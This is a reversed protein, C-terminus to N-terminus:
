ELPSKKHYAANAAFCNPQLRRRACKRDFAKESEGPNIFLPSAVHEASFATEALRVVDPHESSIDNKEYSDSIVDYVETEAAAFPRYAKYRGTRIAQARLYEFYMYERQPSAGDTLMPLLSVGDTDPPVAGAADAFTAMLDILGCPYQINERHAVANKWSFILPIRCGAEGNLSFKSGRFEGKHNFFAVEDDRSIGFYGWASYGNDSAFVFLTDDYRGDKKLCDVIRGVGNDLMTVVAAWEKHKLSPFDADKYQLLNPVILPGHPNQVCYYLFFPQEKNESIFEIAKDECLLYSNKGKKDPLEDIVLEGDSNYVNEFEATEDYRLSNYRYRKTMDFGRNEPIDVRKGNEYLYEPYFTHAYNQDLFGYSYDFGKKDPTANGGELGVAWKGISATTYGAQRLIDGITKEDENLQVQYMGDKVRVCNDRITAHGMHKGTLLCCRSPGCVPAASYADTCLVGERALADINPTDILKQNYCGLDRLSLDDSLILVINPKKRGSQEVMSILIRENGRM